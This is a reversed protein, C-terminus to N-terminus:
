KDPSNSRPKIKKLLGEGIPKFESDPPKGLAKEKDPALEKEIRQMATQLAIQVERRSKFEGNNVKATIEIFTKKQRELLLKM